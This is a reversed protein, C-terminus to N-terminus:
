NKSLLSHVLPRGYQIFFPGLGPRKKAKLHRAMDEKTDREEGCLMRTWKIGKM